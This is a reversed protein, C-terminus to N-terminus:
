YPLNFRVGFNASISIPNENRYSLLNSESLLYRCYPECYLSITKNINYQIGTRVITSWLVNEESLSATGSRASICKELEFGAGVYWEFANNAYITYDCCMPFGLYHIKQVENRMGKSSPIEAYSIYLSYNCGTTITFHKNLKIGLTLGFTIPPLQTYYVEEMGGTIDGEGPDCVQNNIETHSNIGPGGSLGISIIPKHTGKTSADVSEEEFEFSYEDEPISSKDKVSEAIVTLGNGTESSSSDQQYDTEITSVSGLSTTKHPLHILKNQCYQIDTKVTATNSAILIQHTYPTNEKRDFGELGIFVFATLLSAAAVLSLSLRLKKARKRKAYHVKFNDWDGIILNTEIENIQESFYKDINTKM